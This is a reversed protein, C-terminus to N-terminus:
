AAKIAYYVQFGSLVIQVIGILVALTGFIVWGRFTYLKNLDRRDNWLARTRRPVANEAFDQLYQLRRAFIPFHRTSSFTTRGFSDSFPLPEDDPDKSCLTVLLPDLLMNTRTIAPIEVRQSHKRSRSDNAFIMAYSLM